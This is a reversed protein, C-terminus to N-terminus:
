TKATDKAVLPHTRLRLLQRGCQPRRQPSENNRLHRERELGVERPASAAVEKGVRRRGGAALGHPPARAEGRVSCWVRIEGGKKERRQGGGARATFPHCMRTLRKCVKKRKPTNLGIHLRVPRAGEKRLLNSIHRHCAAGRQRRAKYGNETRTRCAERANEFHNAPSTGQKAKGPRRGLEADMTSQFQDRTYPNNGGEREENETKKRKKKGKDKEAEVEFVSCKVKVGKTVCQMVDMARLARENSLALKAQNELGEHGLTGASCRNSWMFLLWTTRFPGPL